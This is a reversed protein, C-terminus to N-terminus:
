VFCNQSEKTNKKKKFFFIDFTALPFKKHTLTNFFNVFVKYINNQPVVVVYFVHQM